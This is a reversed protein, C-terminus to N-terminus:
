NGGPVGPAISTMRASPAVLGARALHAVAKIRVRRALQWHALLADPDRAAQPDVAALQRWSTRAAAVNGNAAQAVALALWYPSSRPGTPALMLEAARRAAPADGRDIAMYVLLQFPLTVGSVDLEHARRAYAEARPDGCDMMFMGVYTQIMPDFSNLRVAQLGSRLAAPCNGKYLAVRALALHASPSFPDATVAKAALTDARELPKRVATSRSDIIEDIVFMAANALAAANAPDLEITRDICRRADKLLAETRHQRYQAVRLLCSYGPSVDDGREARENTAIVGYPQVLAAVLPALADTLMEPEAPLVIRESWILRDPELRWLALFLSPREGGGLDSVLRYRADVPAPDPAGTLRPSRVRAVWSRRLADLMTTRVENAMHPDVGPRRISQFDLVPPPVLENAAVLFGPKDDPRVITMAIAIMVTLMALGGFIAAIITVLPRRLPAMGGRDYPVPSVAPPQGPESAIFSVRYRGNPINLRIGDASPHLAYHGDLMKRLRGVQVRPYSDGQADFDPPRGLGDVAVAYAKLQEGRGALTEAILFQLLRRMVPARVFEPTASVAEAEAAIRKALREDSMAPRPEAFTDEVAPM